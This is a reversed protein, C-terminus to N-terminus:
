TGATRCVAEWEKLQARFGWNVDVVPRRGAVYALAGAASLTRPTRTEAADEAVCAMPLAVLLAAGVAPSRSIGQACHVLIRVHKKPPVTIYDGEPCRSDERSSEFSNGSGPLMIVGHTALVRSVWHAIPGLAGVLEAFPLDPLPM